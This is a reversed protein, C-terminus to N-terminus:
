STWCNSFLRLLFAFFYTTQMQLVLSFVRTHLAGRCCVSSVDAIVGIRCIPEEDHAADLGGTFAM